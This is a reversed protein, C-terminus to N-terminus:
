RGGRSEDYKPQSLLAFLPASFIYMKVCYKLVLTTVKKYDDIQKAAGELIFNSM